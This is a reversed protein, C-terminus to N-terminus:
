SDFHRCRQDYERVAELPDTLDIGHRSLVAERTESNGQAVKADLLAFVFPNGHRGATIECAREYDALSIGLWALGDKVSFDEKVESIESQSAIFPEGRPINPIM